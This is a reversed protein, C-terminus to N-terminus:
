RIVPDPDAPDGGIRGRDPRILTLFQNNCELRIYNLRFNLNESMRMAALGPAMPTESASPYILVPTGSVTMVM